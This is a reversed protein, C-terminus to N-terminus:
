GGDDSFLSKLNRSVQPFHFKIWDKYFRKSNGQLSMPLDKVYKQKVYTYM